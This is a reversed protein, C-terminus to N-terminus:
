EKCSQRLFSGKRSIGLRMQGHLDGDLVSNMEGREKQDATEPLDASFPKM